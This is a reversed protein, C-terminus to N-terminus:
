WNPWDRTTLPKGYEVPVIRAEPGTLKVRAPEKVNARARGAVEGSSEGEFWGASGDFLQAFARTRIRAQSNGFCRMRADEEGYLYAGHYADFRANGALIVVSEGRANGNAFGVARGRVRGYTNVEVNGDAYFRVGDHANLKVKDSAFVQADGRATITAQGVAIVIADGTVEVVATGGVIALGTAINQRGKDILILGTLAQEDLQATLLERIASEWRAGTSLATTESVRKLLSPYSPENILETPFTLSAVLRSSTRNRTAANGFLLRHLDTPFESQPLFTYKSDM